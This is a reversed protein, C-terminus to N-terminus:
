GSFIPSTQFPKAVTFCELKNERINSGDNVIGVVIGAVGGVGILRVVVGVGAIRLSVGSVGVIGVGIVGIVGIVGVGFVRIGVVAVVLSTYVM